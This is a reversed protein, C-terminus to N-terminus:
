ADQVEKIVVKAQEWPKASKNFETLVCELKAVTLIASVKASFKKPVYGIMAQKEYTAFEIRVANPDYKNTPEPVLMLNDGESLDNFVDKIRHHQVGAIFFELEM